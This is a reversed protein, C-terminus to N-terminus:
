EGHNGGQKSAPIADVAADLLEFSLCSAGLKVRNKGGAVVFLDSSDWTQTRLKRYREADRANPMVARTETALTQELKVPAPEATPANAASNALVSKVAMKFTLSCKEALAAPIERAEDGDPCCNRYKGEVQGISGCGPCYRVVPEDTAAGDAQQVSAATPAARLMARYAPAMTALNAALMDLTTGPAAHMTMLVIRAAKRALAIDAASATPWAAVAAAAMIEATPELPALKWGKPVPNTKRAQPGNNKTQDHM